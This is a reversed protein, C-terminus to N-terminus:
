ETEGRHDMPIPPETKFLVMSVECTGPVNVIVFRVVVSFRLMGTVATRAVIFIFMAVAVVTVTFTVVTIFLFIMTHHPPRGPSSIWCHSNESSPSM